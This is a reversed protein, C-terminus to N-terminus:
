IHILSLPMPVPLPLQLEEAMNAVKLLCYRFLHNLIEMNVLEPTTKKSKWQKLIQTHQDSLYLIEGEIKINGIDPTYTTTFAFDVSLVKKKFPALTTEKISVIKPLSNVKIEGKAQTNKKEAKMSSFKIGIVPM